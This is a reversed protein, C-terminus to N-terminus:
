FYKKTGYNFALPLVFPVNDSVLLIYTKRFWIFIRKIENEPDNSNIIQCYVGKIVRLRDTLFVIRLSYLKIQTLDLRLIFLNDFLILLLLLFM